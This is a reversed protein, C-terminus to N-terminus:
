RHESRVVSSTFLHVEIREILMEIASLVSEVDATEEVEVLVHKGSETGTFLCTRVATEATELDARDALIEESEVAGKQARILKRVGYTGRGDITSVRLRVPIGAPDIDNKRFEM